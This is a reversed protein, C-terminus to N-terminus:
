GKGYRCMVPVGASSGGRPLALAVRCKSKRARKARAFMSDICEQHYTISPVVATRAHATHAGVEAVSVNGPQVQGDVDPAGCRNSRGSSRQVLRVWAPGNFVSLVLQKARSSSAHWVAYDDANEAAGAIGAAFALSPIAITM